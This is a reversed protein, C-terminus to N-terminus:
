AFGGQPVTILKGFASTLLPSHDCVIIQSDATQKRGIEVILDKLNEVSDSDLHLSPEDLVMCKLEPLILKHFAILFALSLRVRQGGSLKTQDMITADPTDTRRFSFTVPDAAAMVAFNSELISLSTNTLEIITAFKRQIYQMVIGDRKFWGSIEKLEGVIRRKKDDVADLAELNKLNTTLDICQNDYALMTSNHQTIRTQKDEAERIAMGLSIADHADGVALLQSKLNALEQNKLTNSEQSAVAARSLDNYDDRAKETERIQDRLLAATENLGTLGSEQVKLLESKLRALNTHSAWNADNNLRVFVTQMETKEANLSDFLGFVERGYATPNAQWAINEQLADFAANAIEYNRAISVDEDAIKRAIGDRSETLRSISTKCEQIRTERVANQKKSKQIKDDLDRIIPALEAAKKLLVEKRSTLRERLGEAQAKSGCLPCEHSDGHDRIANLLDNVQSYEANTATLETRHTERKAEEVETTQVEESELVPLTNKCTTLSLEAAELSTVLGSRTKIFDRLTTMTERVESLKSPDRVGLTKLKQTTNEVTTKLKEYNAHDALAAEVGRMERTLSEQRNSIDAAAATTKELAARKVQLLGEVAAASNLPLNSSQILGNKSAEISSIKTDMLQIDANLKDVEKVLSLAHRLNNLVETQDVPGTAAFLANESDRKGRTEELLLMLTQKTSTRDTISNALLKAQGDAAISVKELHSLGLLKVFMAERVGQRGFLLDNLEGQPIFGAAAVVSLSVGGFLSELRTAVEDDSTSTVGDYVLERSATTRTTRRMLSGMVGNHSFTGIVEAAPQKQTPDFNRIFTEKAEPLLGTVLWRIGTLINSKGSGNPGIIGVTGSDFDLEAQAHPGFNKFTVKHFKM